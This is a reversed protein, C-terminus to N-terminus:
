FPSGVCENRGKENGAEEPRVLGAAVLALNQEVDVEAALGQVGGVNGIDGPAQEGFGVAVKARVPSGNDGAEGEPEGGAEDFALHTGVRDGREFGKKQEDEGDM